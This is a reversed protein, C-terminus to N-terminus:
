RAHVTPTSPQSQRLKEAEHQAVKVVMLFVLVCHIVFLIYALWRVPSDPKM